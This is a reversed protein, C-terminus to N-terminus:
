CRSRPSELEALLRTAEASNVTGLLELARETHVDAERREGRGQHVDSLLILAKAHWVVSGLEDFAQRSLDVHREGAPYDGRALAIEGLAYLAQGEIQRDGVQRAVSLAHQLTTAANDLRGTRQRVVGLRYLAHAEGARDGIDRVILLMRNLAQHAEDVDNTHLKLEAFRDLVQAEGRVYEVQRCRALATTLLEHAAEFDGEDMAIKALNQLVHAEGVTDGALRMRALAEHYKSRMATPRNRLRDITAANRLVLACGHDDGEVQFKELAAVFSREADTLRRQAMYMTGLSYLMAAQGRNNGARETVALALETATRWDDFYGRVEFLTVGTLALDWCMEDMQHEAAMAVADVLSRRERDLWEMPDDDEVLEDEAPVWRPATGHIIAFDGGYEKRHAREARALWAGLLRQVAATREELSEEAMLRETAYVRILDHFRFRLREGPYKVTDLLQAEVLSELVEDADFVNTDLLAAATWGPFDSTTTLAFLRLLRKADAPLGRYSLGLNSRLELGRYALEDLRRVTNRLRAVLIDLRWHPRSALRAGAIRVALPLGGCFNVLEVAADREAIMRDPGVIKGLMELSPEVDFVGVDIFHAGPLGSLRARSSVIVACCPGAPLLPLVQDESTAGDLVVLVRKNALRGRYMDAREELDDPIASGEIGLARLFRGLVAEVRPESGPADLDGYLHGDSYIDRLEHAARVALTSKGVGGKGSIAVIRVGYRSAADPDDGLVRKIEALQDQRGTFDAISAPLRRPVVHAEVPTEAGTSRSSAAIELEPDRNLIANELRLLSQGPEIGLQEVLMSRARRCVELSEAQRGSRYLALILFEYLRERLPHEEVLATLEGIVEEHRSLAIDLRIRETLASLRASELQAAGRQVLDSHVGALAPGQWLSLASRLTAVAESERGASVHSRAAGVLAAFQETDLSELPIELVYGPSRTRISATVRSDDFIKRLGSVCIQVQLRATTPPSTNWVADILQDVPTVRNANLALMALVIRQRAGGLDLEGGDVSLELPGLLRLRM